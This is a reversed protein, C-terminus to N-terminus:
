STASATRLFGNLETTSSGERRSCMVRRSEFATSCNFGNRSSRQVGSAKASPFRTAYRQHAFPMTSLRRQAVALRTTPSAPVARFRAVIAFSRAKISPGYFRSSQPPRLAAHRASASPGAKPGGSIPLGNPTELRRHHWDSFHISSCEVSRPIGRHGSRLQEAGSM